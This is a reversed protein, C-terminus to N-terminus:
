TRRDRLKRLAASVTTALLAILLATLLVEPFPSIPEEAGHGIPGFMVYFPAWMVHWALCVGPSGYSRSAVTDEFCFPAAVVLGWILPSIPLSVLLWIFVCRTGHLLAWGFFKVWQM